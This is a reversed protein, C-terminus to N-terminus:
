PSECAPWAAALWGYAPPASIQAQHLPSRYFPGEGIQQPLVTQLRAILRKDSCLLVTLFRTRVVKWVSHSVFQRHKEMYDCGSWSTLVVVRTGMERSVCGLGQTTRCRGRPRTTRIASTFTGFRSSDLVWADVIARWLTAPRRRRSKLFRCSVAPQKDKILLM